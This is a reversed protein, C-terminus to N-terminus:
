GSLLQRAAARQLPPVRNVIRMMGLLLAKRAGRSQLLRRARESVNLVHRGLPHQTASYGDQTGDVLRRALEAADAIGLNMGRGGVPSHQHAADGVLFVRGKQYSDAQRIGIMFTGSRHLHDVPLDVPLVALADPRDAIVRYRDAAMPVVVAIHGQPLLFGMFNNKHPWTRSQVDAISWAGPLDYGAFPIDLASRVASHAGDAGILWDAHYSDGNAFHATVGNADQALGTVEHGYTVQGGYRQFAAALHAETRDQPLGHVSSRADFNLPLRMIPRVGHHMIMSTFRVAEAAIAPGAGCPTLLDLSGPTIGVARSLNSAGDRKEFVRVSAGHRALEAAATLGSPGAGIIAVRMM